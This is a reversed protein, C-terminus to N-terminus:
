TVTIYVKKSKAKAKPNYTQFKRIVFTDSLEEFSVYLQLIVFTFSM